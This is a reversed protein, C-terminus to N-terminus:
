EPDFQHESLLTASFLGEPDVRRKVAQLRIVSKTLSRKLVKTQSACLMSGAFRYLLMRAQPAEWRNYKGSLAKLERHCKDRQLARHEEDEEVPEGYPGPGGSGIEPRVAVM